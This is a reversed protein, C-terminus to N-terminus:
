VSPFIANIDQTHCIALVMDAHHAFITFVSDPINNFEVNGVPSMKVTYSGDDTGIQGDEQSKINSNQGNDGICGGVLSSTVLTGGYKIYDRRTSTKNQTKINDNSGM